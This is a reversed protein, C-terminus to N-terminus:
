NYGSNQIIKNNVDIVSQPVPFYKYKDMSFARKEVVINDGSLIVDGTEANVIGPKVGYANGPMVDKAIDWRVIDYWRLGELALEVRRERRVLERMKEQSNNDAKDVAPMGARLRVKDLAEYVSNDIQKLEIKAEAYILLVEAYRILVSNQGNQDWVSNFAPNIGKRMNYGTRSANIKSFYDLGDKNLPDFFRGRWNSGPHVITQTLRPDRNKYPDVPDYLGSEAITKGDTCEYADVLGQLPCISSWGGDKNPAMYVDSWTKQGQLNAFQADMIIEPNYENGEWFLEEYKPFLEYGLQMVAQATSAAESWQGEYLHVRAKLALAAGKTIRGQDVGSYSVPLDDKAADLEDLVFKIVDAKPTRGEVFSEELNLTKTILPFDGYMYARFFYQFARNFRVEAIFRKKLADEMDPVRDINELFSNCRRIIGYDWHNRLDWYGETPTATGNGFKQIGDWSFQSYANDTLGDWWMTEWYTILGYCANLALEADKATSWFSGPTLENPNERDLFDENCAPFIILAALALYLIKKM